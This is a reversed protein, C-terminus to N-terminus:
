KILSVSTKQGFWWRKQGGVARVGNRESGVFWLPGEDVLSDDVRM